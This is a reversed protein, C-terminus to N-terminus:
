EWRKLIREKYQPTLKKGRRRMVKEAVELYKPYLYEKIKGKTVWSFPPVYKPTEGGGFINSFCGLVCGTPLLTGIGTKVHDGIFAGVNLLKTNVKKGEIEVKVEGYTNKLNSTTTLAGLNVWEGIYSHGVFGEHRKNSYNSFISAEVEGGIKCVKGITTNPKVKATEILSGERIATPGYIVTFPTIHTNKEVYIPGHKENFFVEGEITVGKEVYVNKEEKIWMKFDQTINKGNEEVIEWLYNYVCGEVEIKPLNHTIKKVEGEKIPGSIVESKRWRLKFGVVKRKSILVGEKEPLVERIIARGNLFLVWGEEIKTREFRSIPVIKQPSYLKEMREKFTFIGSYLEFVERLYTLPLFNKWGEDEYIYIKEGVKIKVDRESTKNRKREDEGEDRGM